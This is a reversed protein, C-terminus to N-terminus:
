GRAAENIYQLFGAMNEDAEHEYETSLPIYFYSDDVDTQGVTDISQGDDWTVDVGYWKEDIKVYNWAHSETVGSSNTGTGSVLVNEIGLGDLIYKFTRAYGECVVKKNYLAGYINHIDNKKTRQIM